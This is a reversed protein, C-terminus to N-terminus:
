ARAELLDALRVLEAALRRAGDARLDVDLLDSAVSYSLPAGLPSEWGTLYLDIDTRWDTTGIGELVVRAENHHTGFDEPMACRALEERDSVHNTTCWDPCSPLRPDLQMVSIM